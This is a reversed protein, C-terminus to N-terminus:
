NLLIITREQVAMGRHNKEDQGCMQIPSRVCVSGDKRLGARYKIIITRHFISFTIDGRHRVKIFRDM